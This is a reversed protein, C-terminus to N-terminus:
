INDVDSTIIHFCCLRFISQKYFYLMNIYIVTHDIRNQSGSDFYAMINPWLYLINNVKYNCTIANTKITLFILYTILNLM